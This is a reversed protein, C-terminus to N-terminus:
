PYDRIGAVICIRTLIFTVIELSVQQPAAPLEQRVVFTQSVPTRRGSQLSFNERAAGAVISEVSRNGRRCGVATDYNRSVVLCIQQFGQADTQTAPSRGRRENCINVVVGFALTYEDLVLIFNLCM